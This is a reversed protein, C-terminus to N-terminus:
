QGPVYPADNVHQFLWHRVGANTHIAQAVPATASMSVAMILSGILAVCTGMTVSNHRRRVQGAVRTSLM